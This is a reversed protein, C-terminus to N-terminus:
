RKGGKECTWKWDRQKNMKNDDKRHMGVVTSCLKPNEKNGLFPTNLREETHCSNAM